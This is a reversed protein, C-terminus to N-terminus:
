STHCFNCAIQTMIWGKYASVKSYFGPFDKVACGQGYSVIGTQKWVGDIEDFCVLPGGSDGFCSDKSGDLYGACVILDPSMKRLNLKESRNVADRCTAENILPVELENLIDSIKGRSSPEARWFM